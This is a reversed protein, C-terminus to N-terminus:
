NPAAVFGFFPLPDATRKPLYASSIVGSENKAIRDPGCISSPVPQVRIIQGVKFPGRKVELVRARATAPFSASELARIRIVLPAKVPLAHPIPHGRGQKAVPPPTCAHSPLTALFLSCAAMPMTMIFGFTRM